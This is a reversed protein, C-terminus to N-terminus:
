EDKITYNMLTSNVDNITSSYCTVKYDRWVPENCPILPVPTIIPSQDERYIKKAGDAVGAEYAEQIYKEFESITIKIYDGEHGSIYIIMPKM